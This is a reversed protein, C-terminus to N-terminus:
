ANSGDGIQIVDGYGNQNSAFELYRLDWHHAGPATRIAAATNPSRLRALLPAHAPQIRVGAAPLVSDPASTRVTIWGGGAKVPLVFNGSFEVGEQLLITDGPQASNLAAQLNGGAGVYVTAAELSTIAGTLVALVTLVCRWGATTMSEGTKTYSPFKASCAGFPSPCPRHRTM